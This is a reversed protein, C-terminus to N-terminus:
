GAAVEGVVFVDRLRALIGKKMAQPVLTGRAVVLERVALVTDILAPIEFRIRVDGRAPHIRHMVIHLEAPALAAIRPTIEGRTAVEGDVPFDRPRASIGQDM